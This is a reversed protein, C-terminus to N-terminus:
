WPMYEHDEVPAPRNLDISSHAQSLSDPLRPQETITKLEDPAGTLHIRKHGGLAQGSRFGKLCVPCEHKVRKSGSNREAKGKGKRLDPTPPSINTELCNEDSEASKVSGDHRRSHKGAHKVLALHTEFVKDCVLCEFKGSQEFCNRRTDVNAYPSDTKNIIPDDWVEPSSSDNLPKNRFEKGLETNAAGRRRKLKVGIHGDKFRLSDEMKVSLESSNGVSNIGGWKGSDRSLMMLCKAVEEQENEVVSVSSENNYNPAPRFNSKFSANCDASAVNSHRDKYEVRKSRRRLSPGATVGTETDSHSDSVVKKNYWSSNHKGQHGLNNLSKDKESHCAMHGCMAKQSQFAKGCKVCVFKKANGSDVVKNKKKLMMKRSKQRLEYEANEKAEEVMSDEDVQEEEEEEEEADVEEEDEDDSYDCLSALKVTNNAAEEAAPSADFVHSRMHGGLSRGCPYSRNCLKCVHKNM